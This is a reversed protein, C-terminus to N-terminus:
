AQLVEQVRAQEATRLERLKASEQYSDKWEGLKVKTPRGSADTIPVQIDYLKAVDVGWAAALEDLDQPLAVEDTAEAPEASAEIPAQEPEPQAQVPPEPQAQREPAAQQEPEDTSSFFAALRDEVSPKDSM